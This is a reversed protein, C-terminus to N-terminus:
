KANRKEKYIGVPGGTYSACILKHEYNRPCATVPAYQYCCGECSDPDIEPVLEVEAYSPYVEVVAVQANSYEELQEPTMEDPCYELMLEDIRAQKAGVERRLENITQVAMRVSNQLERIADNMQTRLDM